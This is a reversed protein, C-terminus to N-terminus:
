ISKVTVPKDVPRAFPNYNEWAPRKLTQVPVRSVANQIALIIRIGLKQGHLGGAFVFVCNHDGTAVPHIVDLAEVTLLDEFGFVKLGHRDLGVFILRGACQDSQRSASSVAGALM